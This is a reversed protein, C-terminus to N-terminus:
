PRKKVRLRFFIRLGPGEILSWSEPERAILEWGDSSWHSLDRTWEPTVEVADAGPALALTLTNTEPNFDSASAMGRGWWEEGM